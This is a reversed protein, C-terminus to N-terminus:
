LYRRFVFIYAVTSWIILSFVNKLFHKKNYSYEKNENEGPTFLLLTQNILFFVILKQFFNTEKIYTEFFTAQLALYKYFFHLLFFLSIALFYIDYIRSYKKQQKEKQEQEKATSPIYTLNINIINDASLIFADGPIKKQITQAPNPNQGSPTHTSQKKYRYADILYIKDLKTIDESKLDYDVVFGTYLERKNENVSVLIDAFTTNTEANFTINNQYSVRHANKFKKMKLVEGSFIYYWQNRFRFLKFKKDWGIWRIIRSSFYGIFSAFLCIFATYILFVKIDNNIFEKTVDKVKDTDSTIDKFIVFTDHFDTKFEFLECYIIFGLLQIFVGPIISFFISHLVPDKTNFQKSFDGFFYFRRFLLGPVIIFIFFAIFGLTLNM